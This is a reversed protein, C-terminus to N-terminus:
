RRSKSKSSRKYGNKKCVYISGILLASILAHFCGLRISFILFEDIIYIMAVYFYKPSISLREYFRSVYLVLPLIVSMLFAAITSYTIYRLARHVWRHMMIITVIIVGALVIMGIAVIGAIKVFSNWYPMAKAVVVLEINDTYEDEILTLYEELYVEQEESLELGEEELYSNINDLLKSRIQATDPKYQEGDVTAKVSASVDKKIDELDFIDHVVEVPLGIPLTLSECDTYLAEMLEVSYNTKMIAGTLVGTNLGRFYLDGIYTLCTLVVALVFALISSLIFKLARNSSM